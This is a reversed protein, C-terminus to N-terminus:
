RPDGETNSRRAAALTLAIAAADRLGDRYWVPGQLAEGGPPLADIHAALQDIHAALADLADAEILPRIDAVVARAETTFQEADVAPAHEPAVMNYLRAFHAAAAQEAPTLDTQDATRAAAARAAGGCKCGVVRCHDHIPDAM